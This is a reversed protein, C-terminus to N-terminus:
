PWPGVFSASINGAIERVYANVHSSDISQRHGEEDIYQFLEHGPQDQCRQVIRALRGDSVDVRHLKGGKGQFEFRVRAGKIRVHRARM